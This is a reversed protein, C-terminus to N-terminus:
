GPHEHGGGACRGEELGGREGDAVGDHLPERRRQLPEHVAQDRDARDERDETQEEREGGDGLPFKEATQLVAESGVAGADRIKRDQGEVQLVLEPTEGLREGVGHLGDRLFVDHGGGGVLHQVIERRDDDDCERQHSEGHEREPPVHDGDFEVGRQEVEEGGAGRGLERDEHGAPRAVVFVRQEGGHARERLEDRVLQRQQEGDDGDHEDGARERGLVDGGRLAEPREPKERVPEDERRPAKGGEDDEENGREGLAVTRREVQGLGFAFEDGAVEGFVGAEFVREEKHGFIEAEGRQAAEADRQKEAAPLRRAREELEDRGIEPEHSFQDHHDDEEDPHAARQEAEADVLERAEGPLEHHRERQEIEAVGGKPHQGGM